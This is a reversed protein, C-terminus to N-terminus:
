NNDEPEDLVFSFATGASTLEKVLTEAEKRAIERERLPVAMDLSKQRLLEARLSKHVPFDKNHLATYLAEAERWNGQRLALKCRLGTQVDKAARGKFEKEVNSLEQLAEDYRKLEILIDIRNTLIEHLPPHRQAARNAEVLARDFQGRAAYFTALRHYYNERRPEVEELDKLFEEAKQYKGGRIAIAAALDVIFPNRPHRELAIKIDAQAEDVLGLQYKCHARDRYVAVGHDGAREAQTFHWVAAKLDGRKWSMFGALYHQERHGREKLRSVVAEAQSWEAAGEHALRIYAKALIVWGRDPKPDAETARQAFDRAAKWDKEHYAATAIKLLMSPVVIDAFEELEKASARAATYLTADIADLSPVTTPDKWYLSKLRQAFVSFEAPTILGFERYVSNRMPAALSLTDIYRVIVSHDILRTVRPALEATPADVITGLVDLSLGPEMGLVRLILQDMADLQLKTLVRDFTRVKLDILSSKDAVLADIGYRQAYAVALQVAPPYGDLYHTLEQATKEDPTKGMASKLTQVLLRRTADLTLPPVAFSVIRSRGSTQAIPPRRRQVVVLYPESTSAVVEKFVASVKDTFMGSEEILAGQDVIVLAANDKAIGDIEKAVLRAQDSASATRFTEIAKKYEDRTTFANADELLQIYLKDLDDTEELLLVPGFNLSLNDKLARRAVSRRGVGELGSFVLVQPAPLGSPPSVQGAVEKLLEERGVFLPQQDAGELQMLKSLILRAAQSPRAQPCFLGKQMWPPLDSSKVSRDIVVVLVSKLKGAIRLTEAEDIEFKVWTSSLSRASAFLVFISSADLGRRISDRFDAGPEFNQRDYVVRSRSLRRAVIDVYPKDESSHSLFARAM